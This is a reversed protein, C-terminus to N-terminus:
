RRDGETLPTGLCEERLDARPPPAIRVKPRSGIERKFKLALRYAPDEESEMAFIFEM